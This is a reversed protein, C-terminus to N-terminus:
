VSQTFVIYLTNPTGGLWRYKHIRVHIRDHICIRHQCLRRVRHSATKPFSGGACTFLAKRSM